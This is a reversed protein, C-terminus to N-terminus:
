LGRGRSHALAQLRPASVLGSAVALALYSRQERWNLRISRLAWRMAKRRQNMAAYGFAQRGYVWALGKPNRSLVPHKALLYDFAEIVVAWQAMYYSHAQGWLVRVTSAELVSIRGQGAARLIWDYDEAYSGPIQEDILGISDLIATRRAILTSSHAATVRRQSLESITLEDPRPIREIERGSYLITCGSVGVDARDSELQRVQRTLKTPIWTDDDDCFAIIPARSLLIGTNRAGALGPTRSNTTIQVPRRADEAVLGPDPESQDHVVITGVVGPYDQHEIATLTKALLERRNRTAVVVCVGPWDASTM